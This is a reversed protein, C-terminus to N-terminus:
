KYIGRVREIIYLVIAVATLTTLIIDAKSRFFPLKSM